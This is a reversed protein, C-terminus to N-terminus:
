APVSRAAFAKLLEQAVLPASAPNQGTILNGDVVVHGGFPEEAKSYVAGLEVLRSEPLVPVVKDFTTMEEEVNSIATV